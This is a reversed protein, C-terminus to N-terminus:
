FSTILQNSSAATIQPCPDLIRVDYSHRGDTGQEQGQQGARQRGAPEAEGGARHHRVDGHASPPLGDTSCLDGGNFALDIHPRIRAESAAITVQLDPDPNIHASINALANIVAGSCQQYKTKREASIPCAIQAPARDIFLM